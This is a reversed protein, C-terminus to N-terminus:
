GFFFVRGVTTRLRYDGYRLTGLLTVLPEIDGSELTRFISIQAPFLNVLSGLHNIM